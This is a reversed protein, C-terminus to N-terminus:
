RVWAQLPAVTGAIVLTMWGGACRAPVNVRVRLEHGGSGIETRAVVLAGGCHQSVFIPGDTSPVVVAMVDGGPTVGRNVVGPNAFWAHTPTITASAGVWRETTAVVSGSAWAALVFVACVTIVVSARRVTTGRRPQTPM